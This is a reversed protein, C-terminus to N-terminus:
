EKPLVTTLNLRTIVKNCEITLSLMVIAEVKSINRKLAFAESKNFRESWRSVKWKATILM